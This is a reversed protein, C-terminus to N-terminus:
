PFAAQDSYRVVARHSSASTHPAQHPAAPPTRQTGTSSRQAQLPILPSFIAIPLPCYAIPFLFIFLFFSRRRRQAVGGGGGLARPLHCINIAPKRPPNSRSQAPYRSRTRNRPLNQPPRHPPSKRPIKIRPRPTQRTRNRHPHHLRRRPRLNRIRPHRRAPPPHPQPAPLAPTLRPNPKPPRRPPRQHPHQHLPRHFLFLLGGGVEFIRGGRGSARPLRLFSHRRPNTQPTSGPAPM